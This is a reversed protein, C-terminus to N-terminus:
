NNMWNFWHKFRLSNASPNIWLSLLIKNNEWCVYWDMELIYHLNLRAIHPSLDRLKESIQVCVVMLKIALFHAAALIWDWKNYTLILNIHLKWCLQLIWVRSASISLAQIEFWMKCMLMNVTKPRKVFPLNQSKHGFECALIALLLSSGNSVKGVVDFCWNPSIPNNPEWAKDEMEVAKSKCPQPIHFFWIIIVLFDTWMQKLCLFFVIVRIIDM